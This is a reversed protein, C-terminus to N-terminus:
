APTLYIPFHCFIWLDFGRAPAATSSPLPHSAGSPPASFAWELLHGPKLDEQDGTLGMGLLWFPSLLM